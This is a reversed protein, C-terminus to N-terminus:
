DRVEPTVTHDENVEEQPVSSSQLELRIRRPAIGQNILGTSVRNQPQRARIKIGRGETLNSETNHNIMQGQHIVDSYYSNNTPYVSVADRPWGSAGNDSGYQDFLCHFNNCLELIPFKYM